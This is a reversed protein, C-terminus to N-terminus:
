SPRPEPGGSEPPAPASEESEAQELKERYRKSAKRALRVLEERTADLEPWIERGAILVIDHGPPLEAQELRFAERFIRRVRNRKVASKWTVKGVSLGLRAHDLSNGAVAVTMLTGRARNGERYVRKFDAASRIHHADKFRFRRPPTPESAL